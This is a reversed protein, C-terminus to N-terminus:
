RVSQFGIAALFTGERREGEQDGRRKLCMWYRRELMEDTGAPKTERSALDGGEGKERFV